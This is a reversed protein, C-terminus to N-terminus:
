ASHSSAAPQSSDAQLLPLFTLWADADTSPVAGNPPADAKSQAGYGQTASSLLPYPSSVLSPFFPSSHVASGSAAALGDLPFSLGDSGGDYPQLLYDHFGFTSSPQGHQQETSPPLSAMSGHLGDMPPAPSQTQRLFSSEPASVMSTSPFEANAGFQTSRDSSTPMFSGHRASRPPAAVLITSGPPPASGIANISNWTADSLWTPHQTAQFLAEHHSTRRVGNQGDDGAHTPMPSSQPYSSSSSVAGNFIADFATSDRAAATSAANAYGNAFSASSQSPPDLVSRLVASSATDFTDRIRAGYGDDRSTLAQLTSACGQVNFVVDVIPQPCPIGFRALKELSNLHTLGSIFLHHTALWPFNITSNRHMNKYIKMAHGSAIFAQRLGNQDPRPNNPSPRFLLSASLHYNLNIWDQTVFPAANSAQLDPRSGNLEKPSPNSFLFKSQTSDNKWESLKAMMRTQWEVNPTPPGVDMVIALSQRMPISNLDDLAYDRPNVSHLRCLIESQIRRLAIHARFTQKLPDAQDTVASAPDDELRILEQDSLLSPLQVHIWADSLGPPRALAVALSRDLCYSTWFLRRRIDLTEIGFRAQTISDYDRDFHLNLETVLRMAAGSLEWVSGATPVLCAYQFQLLTARLKDLDPCRFCAPYLSQAESWYQHGLKRLDSSYHHRRSLSALAIALVMLVTYRNRTLSYRDAQTPAPTPPPPMESANAEPHLASQLRRDDEYVQAAIQRLRVQNFVPLAGNMYNLYKSILLDFFSRDYVSISAMRGSRTKSPQAGTDASSDHASPAEAKNHSTSAASQHRSASSSSRRKIRTPSMNRGRHHKTLAALATAEDDNLTQTSSRPLISPRRPESSTPLDSALTEFITTSQQILDNPTPELSGLGPSSSGSPSSEDSPDSSPSDLRRRKSRSQSGAQALRSELDKVKQQLDYILSRSVNPVKDRGVCERGSKQCPTCVPLLADCKVKRSRCEECAPLRGERQPTETASRGSNKSSGPQKPSLPRSLSKDAAKAIPTALPLHQTSSAAETPVTATATMALSVCLWPPCSARTEVRSSLTM